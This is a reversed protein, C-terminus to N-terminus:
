TFPNDPLLTNFESSDKNIISNDNSIRTNDRDAPEKAMEIAKDNEAAVVSNYLEELRNVNKILTDSKTLISKM